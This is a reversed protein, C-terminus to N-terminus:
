ALSFGSIQIEKKSIGDLLFISPGQLSVLSKSALLVVVHGANLIIDACPLADFSITFHLVTMRM